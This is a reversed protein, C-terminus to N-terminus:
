GSRTRGSEPSTGAEVSGSDCYSGLDMGGLAERKFSQARVRGGRPPESNGSVVRSIMGPHGMFCTVSSTKAATASAAHSVLGVAGAALRSRRLREATVEWVLASIGISRKTNTGQALPPAPSSMTTLPGQVHEELDRNAIRSVHQKVSVELRLTDAARTEHGPILILRRANRPGRVGEACREGNRGREHVVEVHDALSGVVVKLHM